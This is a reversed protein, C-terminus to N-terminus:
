SQCGYLSNINIVDSRALNQKFHSELIHAQPDRSIMTRQGNRTFAKSGYIMISNYDFNSAPRYQFVPIKQFQDYMNPLINPWDIQLYQDRDYRMHEHYLGIAHCLEHLTSGVDHCGAGLSLIQRGGTRGV